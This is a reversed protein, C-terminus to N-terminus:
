KLLNFSRTICHNEIQLRYLYIGSKLDKGDSNKGDWLISYDGAKKYESVLTKILQGKINLIKLTTYGCKNLSFDIHTKPNFHTPYNQSLFHNIKIYNIYNESINNGSLDKKRFYIEGTGPSDSKAYVLYLKRNKNLIKPGFIANLCEDIIIGEWSINFYHYFLKSGNQNSKTYIIHKDNNEDIEITQNLLLGYVEVIIEPESWNEGDFYAYKTAEQHPIEYVTHWRLVVHPNEENDLDIGYVSTQYESTIYQIDSWEDLSKNYTVYIGYVKTTDGSYDIYSGGLHLDNNSDVVIGLFGINRDENNPYPNYIESWENNEYYCYYYGNWYFFVYIRDANDIVIINYDSGPYDESIITPESWSEGDYKRFHVQTQYTNGINYDYTVYLNDESDVAIHPEMCAYQSNQSIDLPTSWTEGDDESKIYYIKRYNTEITHSWVCHITNNNDIAIDPQLDFGEMNSINIPESWGPFLESLEYKYINQYDDSVYIFGG